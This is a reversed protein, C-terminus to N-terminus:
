KPKFGIVALGYSNYVGFSDVDYYGKFPQGYNYNIYFKDESNYGEINFWHGEVNGPEGPKPSTAKRAAIMVPRGNALERKLLKIWEDKSYEWRKAFHVDSSVNFYKKLGAIYLDGPTGVDIFNTLCVAGAAFFLKAVDKYESLSSSSSITNPLNNYDIKLTDFDLRFRVENTTNLADVTGSGYIKGKWHALVRSLTTPGCPAPYKGNVNSSGTYAPYYINFPWTFVSWTTSLLPNVSEPFSSEDITKFSVDEGYSTGKENTAFARVHYSTNALLDSIECIFTLDKSASTIVNDTKTPNANVSWCIGRGTISAGGDSTIQATVKAGTYLIDKVEVTKVNPANKEIPKENNENKSCSYFSFLALLIMLSWKGYNHMNKM